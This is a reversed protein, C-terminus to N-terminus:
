TAGNTHALMPALRSLARARLDPRLALQEAMWEAADDIRDELSKDEAENVIAVARRADSESKAGIHIFFNNAAEREIGVEAALKYYLAIADRKHARLRADFAEIVLEAREDEQLVALM